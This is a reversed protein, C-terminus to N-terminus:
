YSKQASLMRQTVEIYYDFIQGPNLATWKKYLDRRLSVQQVLGTIEAWLVISIKTTDLNKDISGDNKGETVSSVLLNFIEESKEYAKKVNPDSEDFKTEQTEYDLILRYYNEYNISFNVYTKGMSVVKEFGNKCNNIGEDILEKLTRLAREVSTFYLDKKSSFYLYLTGKALKSKKAIETMTTNQYGKQIFLKEAADMILNKKKEKKNDIKNYKM